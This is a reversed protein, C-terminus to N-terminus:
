EGGVNINNDVVDDSMELASDINAKCEAEDRGYLTCIREMSARFNSNTVIEHYLMAISVGVIFTIIIHLVERGLWRLRRHGKRKNRAHIEKHLVKKEM